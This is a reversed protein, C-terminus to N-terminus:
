KDHFGVQRLTILIAHFNVGAGGPAHWRVIADEADVEAHNAQHRLFSAESSPAHKAKLPALQQPDRNEGRADDKLQEHRGGDPEGVVAIEALHDPSKRQTGRGVIRRFFIHVESGTPGVVPRKLPHGVINRGLQNGNGRSYQDTPPEAVLHEIDPDQARDVRQQPDATEGRQQWQQPRERAPPPM